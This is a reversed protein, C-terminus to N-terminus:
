SILHCYVIVVVSVDARRVGEVVGDDMSVLESEANPGFM